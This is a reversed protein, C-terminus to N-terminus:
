QEEWVPSPGGQTFTIWPWQKHLTWHSSLTVRLGRGLPWKKVTRDELKEQFTCEKWGLLLTKIHINIYQTHQSLPLQQSDRTYYTYRTTKEKRQQLARRGTSWSAFASTYSGGRPTCRHGGGGEAQAAWRKARRHTWVPQMGQAAAGARAGAKRYKRGAKQSQGCLKPFTRICKQLWVVLIILHRKKNNSFTTIFALM